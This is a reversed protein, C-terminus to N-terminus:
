KLSITYLNPITGLNGLDTLIVLKTADPWPFVYGDVFPGAYVTTQNKSDYEMIDIKGGHVYVLHKSDPYWMLSLPASPKSKQPLGDLISYNRDEKIDYVYVAGKKIERVQPTSNTGMLEPTIILSLTASRSAQYLIKTEDFSWELIDFNESVVKKLRKNLSDMLSKDKDAKLKGWTANVSTLTETVDQPAENLGNTKLLYTTSINSISALIQASDPSWLFEAQSFSALTDSAIQTSASQLTLIPRSTMDLVYVGNKVASQSAVAYAIKTKSPDIVPNLIGINTISELKPATPFLLADAKSVVEKKIIIKKQWEFYGDKFIKIDYVGPALNITNDTATTLHGNIFVSAGDPTSTAVLLGTGSLIPGNGGLGFRYGKGFLIVVSTALILFLVILAPLVIQKRM